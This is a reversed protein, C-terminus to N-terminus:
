SNLILGSKIFVIQLSCGQGPATTIKVEGKYLEARSNINSLGVGKKKMSIEFGIGNDAILLTLHETTEAFIIEVMPAKAHKLTNNVQEQVIRFLNLKFKENLNEESFNNSQLVIKISHAEMIDSILEKISDILGAKNFVPTILTKSFKRIEDIAARTYKSSNELCDYQNQKKEKAMTTYLLSTGLLQTVNDHMERGIESRLNEEAMIVAEAIEKLKLAKDRIAKEEAQIRESLNIMVGDCYEERTVSDARLSINEIVFLPTGDKCKLIKEYNYLKKKKRLQSIFQEHDAASFYFESANKQLLEKPSSYGLMLAFAKNCNLILGSATTQYVGALNQEFFNRYRQESEAMSKESAKRETIITMIGRLLVPINNEVIVAVKDEVWVASGDATLMRYEFRHSIKERTCKVCYAVAADRDDPHIHDEWFGKKLWQNVPYGFLSEAQKSVFLFQFTKADVEWIIGNATNILAEYDKETRKGKM